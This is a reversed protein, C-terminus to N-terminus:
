IKLLFHIIPERYLFLPIKEVDHSVQIIATGTKDSQKIGKTEIGKDQFHELTARGFDDDGVAGIFSVNAGLQAAAVAQNAGKGGFFREYGSSHITEGPRVIRDVSLVLDMNISGVVLINM